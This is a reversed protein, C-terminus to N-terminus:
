EGILRESEVPGGLNKVIWRDKSMKSLDPPFNAFVLIHPSNFLRMRSEYKASFIAGNKVAEIATYNVREEVTRELDMICIRPQNPLSFAIDRKGGDMMCAGHKVYLYKCLASKGINGTKEWYWYIHREDTCENKVLDVIEQQWPRLTEITKIWVSTHDWPGGKRTDEKGSYNKLAFWNAAPEIHVDRRIMNKVECHRHKTTLSFCGQFHLYGDEKGEELQYYFEKCFPRLLEAVQRPEDPEGRYALTFQWRYAQITPVKKEKKDTTNTNGVPEGQSMKHEM